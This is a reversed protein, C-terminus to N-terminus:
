ADTKEGSRPRWADCCGRRDIIGMKRTVAYETDFATIKKLERTKVIGPHICPQIMGEPSLKRIHSCTNCARGTLSGGLEPGIYHVPGVGVPRFDPQVAMMM